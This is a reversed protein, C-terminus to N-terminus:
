VNKLVIMYNMLGEAKLIKHSKHYSDSWVRTDRKLVTILRDLWVCVVRALSMTQLNSGVHAVRIQSLNEQYRKIETPNFENNRTIRPRM